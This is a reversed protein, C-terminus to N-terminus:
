LANDVFNDYEEARVPVEGIKPSSNLIQLERKFKALLRILLTNNNVAMANSDNVATALSFSNGTSGSNLIPRSSFPM